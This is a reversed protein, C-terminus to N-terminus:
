ICGPCQFDMTTTGIHTMRHYQKCKEILKKTSGEKLAPPPKMTSPKMACPECCTRDTAADELESPQIDYHSLNEKM